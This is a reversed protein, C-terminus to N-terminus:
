RQRRQTRRRQQRARKKEARIAHTSPDDPVFRRKGVTMWWLIHIMRGLAPYGYATGYRRELFESADRYSLRRRDGDDRDALGTPPRSYRDAAAGSGSGTMGEFPLQPDVM